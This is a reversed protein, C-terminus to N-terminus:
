RLHFCAPAAPPRSKFLALDAISAVLHQVLNYFIIPLMVQPHDALAVSALVLGTGNNNMGLGFVLSARESSGSRSVSALMYGSSFAIVCLALVILLMIALFDMDPHALVSPLTLSANSYNLILLLCYNVLKLYPTARTVLIEGALFRGFVGLLTPLIVWLGLFSTVEGSALEHLDESYDGTTVLGVTHLVFPTLLPSLATTGLVLGVSLALNGNSNQAWATSAGAIPMSAVLALGMLIQQVEEQNHWGWALFSIAVIFALPTIINCLLAGLLLFPRRLLRTLEETKVGLGANFLLAALMLVPITAVLQSPMIGDGFRVSRIRSGLGPLAAAAAYSLVLMWIFYRHTFHLILKARDEVAPM